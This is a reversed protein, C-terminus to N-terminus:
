VDDTRNLLNEMEGHHPMNAPMASETTKASIRPRIVRRRRPVKKQRHVMATM